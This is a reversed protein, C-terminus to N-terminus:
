KPVLLRSDAASIMAFLFDFSEPESSPSGCACGATDVGCACCGIGEWYSCGFPDVRLTYENSFLMLSYSWSLTIKIDLTKLTTFILWPKVLPNSIM